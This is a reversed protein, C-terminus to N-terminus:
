AQTPDNKIEAERLVKYVHIARMPKGLAPIDPGVLIGAPTPSGLLLKTDQKTRDWIEINQFRVQHTNNGAFLLGVSGSSAAGEPVTAPSTLAFRSDVTVCVFHQNVLVAIDHPETMDSNLIGSDAMVFRGDVVCALACTVTNEISRECTFLWFNKYDRIHFLVGYGGRSGGEYSLGEPEVHVRFLFNSWESGGLFLPSFVDERGNNGLAVYDDGDIRWRGELGFLMQAAHGAPEQPGSKAYVDNAPVEIIPPGVDGSVAVPGQFSPGMPGSFSDGLAVMDAVQESEGFPNGILLPRGSVLDLVSIDSFRMRVPYPASMSLGVSGYDLGQDPLLPFFPAIIEYKDLMLGVSNGRVTLTLEHTEAFDGPAWAEKRVMERGEIKTSFVCSMGAQQREDPSVFLTCYNNEDQMNFIVGFGIKNQSAPMAFLQSVSLRLQYERWNTGGLYAQTVGSAADPSATAMYGDDMKEWFGKDAAFSRISHWEAVQERKPLLVPSNGAIGSSSLKERDEIGVGSPDNATGSETVAPGNFTGLLSSLWAKLPAQQWYVAGMLLLGGIFAVAVSMVKGRSVSAEVLWSEVAMALEGADEYRDRPRRCTAKKVIRRLEKDCETKIGQWNTHRADLIQALRAPNQRRLSVLDAKIDRDTYPSNVPPEYSGLLLEYLMVGLSFVDSAKTLLVHEQSMQEPSQYGRTGVVTANSQTLPSKDSGPSKLLYKCLGFDILTVQGQRNVLTNDPKLDRHIYGEHHLAAVARCLKLFLALRGRVDKHLGDAYKTLSHGDIFEMVYYLRGDESRGEDYLRVIGEGKLNSLIGIEHLFRAEGSSHHHEEKLVKVAFQQDRKSNCREAVYVIGYAGDKREADLIRYDGLRTGILPDYHQLTQGFKGIIGADEPRRPAIGRKKLKAIVREAVEPSTARDRIYAEQEDGSLHFAKEFLSKIEEREVANESM